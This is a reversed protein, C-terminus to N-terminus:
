KVRSWLQDKGDKIPSRTVMFDGRVGYVFYELQDGGPFSIFMQHGESTWLGDSGQPRDRDFVRCTGDKRLTIITRHPLSGASNEKEALPNDDPLVEWTGILSQGDLAPQYIQEPTIGRERLGAAAGAALAIMVVPLLVIVRM